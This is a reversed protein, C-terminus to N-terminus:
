GDELGVRAACSASGLWTHPVGEFCWGLRPTGQKTVWLSAIRKDDRRSGLLQFCARERLIGPHLVLLMVGEELTLPSRGVEAIHAAADRPSLGLTDRGADVDLLLYPGDPPQIEPIPVFDRPGVPRMDVFGAKPGQRTLPMAREVDLGPLVLLAPIHDAGTAAAAAARGDLLAEVHERVAGDTTEALAPLGLEVATELQGHVAEAIGDDTRDVRPGARSVESM